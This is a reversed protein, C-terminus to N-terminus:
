LNNIKLVEDSVAESIKSTKCERWTQLETNIGVSLINKSANIDRDHEMKCIPCTWERIDLTLNKYYYGCNSCIKSTPEFRNVKRIEKGYWKSKYELQRFFEFWSVDSISKALNRNKLMGSINLDEICIIDYYNVLYSSLNHLFFERQRAIKRQIKALRLKCKNYRNSGKVKRSLHQQIQKLEAQNECFYKPNDVVTGDSLTCFSKLGVDIGIEKGTKIKSQITEEIIISVYYDNCKDKSVTCNIFKVDKPIIRDLIIKVFGIKELRIKNNIINFRDNALRFSQKDKKSRFKPKGLKQKRNKNFFQNKFQYFDQEKQNISNHSVEKMWENEQRLEKVTKFVKVDDKGKNFNEVWQNWAFRVCGFTKNLLVKQTENPYIRFKYSKQFM